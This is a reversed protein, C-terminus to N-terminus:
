VFRWSGNMIKNDLINRAVHVARGEVDYGGGGNITDLYLGTGKGIINGDSLADQNKSSYENNGYNYRRTLALENRKDIDIKGGISQTSDSVTLFNSYDIENPNVKPKGYYGSFYQHGGNNTGKGKIKNTSSIANKHQANYETDKDGKIYGDNNFNIATLEDRKEIGRKELCTQKSKGEVNRLENFGKLFRKFNEFESVNIYREYDEINIDKNTAM